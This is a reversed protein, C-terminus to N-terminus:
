DEKMKHHEENGLWNDTLKYIHERVKPNSGVFGCKCKKPVHRITGQYVKADYVVYMPVTYYDHYLKGDIWVGMQAYRKRWKGYGYNTGGHNIPISPAGRADYYRRGDKEYIKCDKIRVIAVYNSEVPEGDRDFDKKPDSERWGLHRARQLQIGDWKM